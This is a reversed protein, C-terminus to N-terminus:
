AEMGAMAIYTERGFILHDQVPIGLMNGAEILSTTIAQDEATPTPDGAPHNHAIVISAAGNQLAIRFIDRPEIHLSDQGGIYVTHIQQASTRNRADLCVVVFHEQQLHSLQQFLLAALDDPGEITVCEIPQMAFRILRALQRCRQMSADEDIGLQRLQYDTIRDLRTVDGAVLELMASAVSLKLNLV